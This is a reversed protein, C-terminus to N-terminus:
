LDPCISGALGLDLYVPNNSPELMHVITPAAVRAFMLGLLCAAAALLASEILVQQVLHSRSAGISLRLSMERERLAARALFRRM